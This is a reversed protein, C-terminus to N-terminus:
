AVDLARLVADAEALSLGGRVLEMVDTPRGRFMKRVVSALLEVDTWDTQTWDSLDASM